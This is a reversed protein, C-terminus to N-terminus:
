SPVFEHAEPLRVGFREPTKGWLWTGDSEESLVLRRGTTIAGLSAMAMTSSDVIIAEEGGVVVRGDALVALAHEGCCEAPLAVQTTGRAATYILLSGNRLAWACVGCAPHFASAMEDEFVHHELPVPEEGARAVVATGAGAFGVTSGDFFLRAGGRPLGVDFEREVRGDGVRVSAWRTGYLTTAGKTIPRMRLLCLFSAGHDDFHGAVESALTGGKQTPEITVLPEMAPLAGVRLAHAYDDYDKVGRRLSQLALLGGPGGTFITGGSVDPRGPLTRVVEDLAPLAVIEGGTRLVYEHSAPDYPDGREELTGVGPLIAKVRGGEGLTLRRTALEVAVTKAPPPDPPVDSAVLPLPGEEGNWTVSWGHREDGFEIWGEIHVAGLDGAPVQAVVSPLFDVFPCDYVSWTSWTARGRVRLRTMWEAPEYDEIEEFAEDDDSAPESQVVLSQLGPATASQRVRLVLKSLLSM